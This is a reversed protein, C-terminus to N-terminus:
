DRAESLPNCIWRQQLSHQLDCIHSLNLTATAITYAPLWLELKVVLKPIEMDCTYGKFFFFFNTLKMFFQLSLPSLGLM